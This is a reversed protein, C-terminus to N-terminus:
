LLTCRSKDLTTSLSYKTSYFLIRQYDALYDEYMTVAELADGYKDELMPVLVRNFSDVFADTATDKVIKNHFLDIIM